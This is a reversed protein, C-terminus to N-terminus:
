SGGPPLASFGESQDARFFRTLYVAFKQEVLVGSHPHNIILTDFKDGAIKVHLPETVNAFHHAGPLRVALYPPPGYAFALPSNPNSGFIEIRFWALDQFSSTWAVEVVVARLEPEVAVDFMTRENPSGYGPCQQRNVNCGMFGEEIETLNYPRTVPPFRVLLTVHVTEGQTVVVGQRVPALERLTAQLEHAGGAVLDFAFTGNQSTLTWRKLDLLDVRVEPVGVREEDLVIGQIAGGGASPESSAGSPTSANGAKEACGALAPLLIALLLLPAPSPRSRAAPAHM